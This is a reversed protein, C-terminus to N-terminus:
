KNILPWTLLSTWFISCLYWSEFKLTLKKKANKDNQSEYTPGKVQLLLLYPPLALYHWFLVKSILYKFIKGRITSTVLAINWSSVESILKPSTEKRTTDWKVALVLSNSSLINENSKVAFVSFSWCAQTWGGTVVGGSKVPATTGHLCCM